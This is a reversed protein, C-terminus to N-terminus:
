FLLDQTSACKVSSTHLIGDREEFFLLGRHDIIISPLDIVSFLFFSTLVQLCKAGEMSLKIFHGMAGEFVSQPQQLLCPSKSFFLSLFHLLFVAVSMIVGCIFPSRLSQSLSLSFNFFFLFIYWENPQPMFLTPGFEIRRIATNSKESTSYVVLAENADLSEM